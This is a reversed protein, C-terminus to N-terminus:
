KGQTAYQGIHTVEAHNGEHQVCCKPDGQCLAEKCKPQQLSFAPQQKQQLDVEEGRFICEQAGTVLPPLYAICALDVLCIYSRM